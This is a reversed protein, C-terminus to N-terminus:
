ESFKENSFARSTHVVSPTTFYRGSLRHVRGPEAAAAAETIAIDAALHADTRARLRLGALQARRRGRQRLDDVRRHVVDARQAARASDSRRLVGVDNWQWVACVRVRVPEDGGLLERVHISYSLLQMTCALEDLMKVNNGQRKEAIKEDLM